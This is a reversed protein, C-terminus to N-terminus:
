LLHEMHWGKFECCKYICQICTREVNRKTSHLFAAFWILWTINPRTGDEPMLIVFTCVMAPTVSGLPINMFTGWFLPNYNLALIFAFCSWATLWDITGKIRYLHLSLICYRPPPLFILRVFWGLPWCEKYLLYHRGPLHAELSGLDLRVSCGSEIWFDLGLLGRCGVAHLLDAVLM